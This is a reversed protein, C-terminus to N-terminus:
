YGELYPQVINSFFLMETDKKGAIYLFIVQLSNSLFLQPLKKPSHMQMYLLFNTYFYPVEISYLQNTSKQLYRPESHMYLTQIDSLLLVSSTDM